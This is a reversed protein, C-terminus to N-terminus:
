CIGRASFINPQGLIWSKKVIMTTPIIYILAFQTSGGTAVKGSGVTLGIVTQRSTRLPNTGLKAFKSFKPIWVHVVAAEMQIKSAKTPTEHMTPSSTSPQNNSDTIVSSELSQFTQSTNDGREFTDQYGSADRKSKGQRKNDTDTRGEDTFHTM